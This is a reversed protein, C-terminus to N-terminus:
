PSSSSAEKKPEEKRPEEKKPEEEVIEGKLNIKEPAQPNVNMDGIIICGPDIKISKATVNGRIEGKSRITLRDVQVNGVIRGGDIVVERMGMVDGVLHGKLGLILSGKSNLTGEFTGDIRLLREFSMTGDMKVNSGITTEPEDDLISRSRNRNPPTPPPSRSRSRGRTKSYNRPPYGGGDDSYVDDADSVQSPPIRRPKPAPRNM